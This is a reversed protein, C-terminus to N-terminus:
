TSTETPLLGRLQPPLQSPLAKSVIAQWLQYVRTTNAAPIDGGEVAADRSQARACADSVSELPFHNSKLNSKNYGGLRERLSKEVDRCASLTEVNAEDMHHFLLWIEFCPKSLAVRVGKQQAERLAAVCGQVHTGQTCHDTDLLMWVEDDPERAISTLRNLVQQATSTGDVTPIVHVQIRSIRLRTGFLPTPDVRCPFGECPTSSVLVLRARRWRSASFFSHRKVHRTSCCLRM